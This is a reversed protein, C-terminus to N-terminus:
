RIFDRYHILDQGRFRLRGSKPSEHSRILKLMADKRLTKTCVCVLEAAKGIPYTQRPDIYPAEEPLPRM